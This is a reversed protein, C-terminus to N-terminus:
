PKGALPAPAPAAKSFIQDLVEKVMGSASKRALSTRLSSGTAVPVDTAPKRFQIDLQLLYSTMDWCWKDQYTVLVQAESPAQTALGTTAQLQRSKLDACILNNLNNKDGLPMVVYYNKISALDTGPVVMAHRKSVCGGLLAVMVLTFGPMVRKWTLSLISTRARGCKSFAAGTLSFQNDTTSMQSEDKIVALATGM